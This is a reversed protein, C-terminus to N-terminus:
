TGGMLLSIDGGLTTKVPMGAKLTGKHVNEGCSGM